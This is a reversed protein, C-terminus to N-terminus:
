RSLIMVMVIIVIVVCAAVFFCYFIMMIVGAVVVVVVVVTVVDVVGNVKAYGVAVTFVGAVKADKGVAVVVISQCLM